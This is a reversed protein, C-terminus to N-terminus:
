SNLFATYFNDIKIRNLVFITTRGHKQAYIFNSKQLIRLNYSIASSSKKIIKEMDELSRPNKDLLDLMFMRDTNGLASFDQTLDSIEIEGLFRILYENPNLSYKTQKGQRIGIIINSQMLNQLHHSVTSKAKGLAFQIEEFSSTRKEITKVITLREIRGLATVWNVFEPNNFKIKSSSLVEKMSLENIKDLDPLNDSKDSLQIFKEIKQYKQGDKIIKKKIESNYLAIEIVPIFDSKNSVPKIIYGFPETKKAKEIIEDDSHATLYVVPINFKNKVIEATEIGDLKEGELGDNDHLKIDMLILDVHIKDINELLEEGSTFTGVVEYNCEKLIISIAEITYLEDEVIAIRKNDLM